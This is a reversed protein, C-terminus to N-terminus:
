GCTCRREWRLVVLPVPCVYVFDAAVYAGIWINRPEIYATLRGWRARRDRLSM